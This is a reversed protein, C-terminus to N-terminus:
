DYIIGKNVSNVYKGLVISDAFATGPPCYGLRVSIREGNYIGDGCIFWMTLEDSEVYECEHVCLPHDVYIRMMDAFSRATELTTFVALPGCNDRPVTWKGLFYETVGFKESMIASIFAVGISHRRPRAKRVVKWGKLIVEDSM